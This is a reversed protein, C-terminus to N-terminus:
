VLSAFSTGVWFYFFNMEICILIGMEGGTLNNQVDHLIGLAKIVAPLAKQYLLVLVRRYEYHSILIWWM